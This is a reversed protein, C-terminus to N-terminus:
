AHFVIVDEEFSDDDVHIMLFRHKKKLSIPQVTYVLISNETTDTYNPEPLLEMKSGTEFDDCHITIFKNIEVCKSCISPDCCLDCTFDLNSDILVLIFLPELEKLPLHVSSVPKSIEVVQLDVPNAKLITAVISNKFELKNTLGITTNNTDVDCSICEQVCIKCIYSGTCSDCIFTNDVSSLESFILIKLYIMM